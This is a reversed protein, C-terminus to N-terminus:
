KSAPKTKRRASRVAREISEETMGMITLCDATASSLERDPVGSRQLAGMVGLAQLEEGINRPRGGSPSPVKDKVSELIDTLQQGWSRQVEQKDLGSHPASPLERAIRNAVKVARELQKVLAVYVQREQTVKAPISRLGDLLSEQTEYVRLVEEAARPYGRGDLYNKLQREKSM